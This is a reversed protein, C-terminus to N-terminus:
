REIKKFHKDVIDLIDEKTIQATSQQTFSQQSRIRAKQEMYKEVDKHIDAKIDLIKYGM